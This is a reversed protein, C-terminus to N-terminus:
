AHIENMALKVTTADAMSPSPSQKFGVFLVTLTFGM